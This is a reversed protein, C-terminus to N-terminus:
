SRKEAPAGRVTNFLKALTGFAVLAATVYGASSQMLDNQTALLFVGVLIMTLSPRCRPAAAIPASEALVAPRQALLDEALGNPASTTTPNTM